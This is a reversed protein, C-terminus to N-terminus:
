FEVKQLVSYTKNKHILYIESNKHYEKCEASPTCDIVEPGNYNENIM